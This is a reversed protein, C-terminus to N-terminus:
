ISHGPLIILTTNANTCLRRLLPRGNFSIVAVLLIMTACLQRAGIILHKGAGYLLYADSITCPHPPLKGRLPARLVVAAVVIAALYPFDLQQPPCTDSTTSPRHSLLDRLPACPVVVVVVAVMAVSTGLSLCIPTLLRLRVRPLQGRLPACPVVEAVVVAVM